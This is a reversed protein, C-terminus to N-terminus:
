HRVGGPAHWEPGCLVGGMSGSALGDQRFRTHWAAVYGQVAAIVDLCLRAMTDLVAQSRARDVPLCLHTLYIM